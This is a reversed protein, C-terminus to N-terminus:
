HKPPVWGCITEGSVAVTRVWRGMKDSLQDAAGLPPAGVSCPIGPSLSTDPRPLWSCGALPLLLLATTLSNAM